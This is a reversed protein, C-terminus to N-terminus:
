IPREGPFPTGEVQYSLTPNGFAGATVRSGRAARVRSEAASTMPHGAQVSDLLGRLTLVNAPPAQQAVLRSPTVHLCSLLFPIAFARSRSSRSQAVIRNRHRLVSM